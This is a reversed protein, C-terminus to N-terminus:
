DIFLESFELDFREEINEGVCREIIEKKEEYVGMLEAMIKMIHPNPWYRDSELIAKERELDNHYWCICMAVASSRSVGASCHTVISEAEDNRKIFDLM